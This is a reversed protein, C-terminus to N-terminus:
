ILVKSLEVVMEFEIYGTVFGIGSTEFSNSVDLHIRESSMVLRRTAGSLVGAIHLRMM